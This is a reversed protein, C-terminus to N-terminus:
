RVNVDSANNANLVVLHPPLSTVQCGTPIDVGLVRLMISSDFNFSSPGAPDNNHFSVNHMHGTIGVAGISFDIEGIAGVYSPAPGTYVIGSTPGFGSHTTNSAAYWPFGAVSIDDCRSDDSSGRTVEGDEVRVQILWNGGVLRKAVKGSMCLNCVVDISPVTCELRTEGCFEFNNYPATGNSAASPGHWEGAHGGASNFHWWSGSGTDFYEFCPAPGPNPNPCPGPEWGAAQAFQSVGLLLFGCGSWLLTKLTRMKIRRTKPNTVCARDAQMILISVELM